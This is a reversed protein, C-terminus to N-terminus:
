KNMQKQIYKIKIKNFPKPYEEPQYAEVEIELGTVEQRMKNLIKMVDIGTCGALGFLVLDTPKYGEENGGAKKAADTVIKHGFTCTGEFKLGDIWKIKSKQM